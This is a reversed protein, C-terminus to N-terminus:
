PNGEQSVPQVAKRVLTECDQHPQLLDVIKTTVAERRRVEDPNLGLKKANAVDKNAAAQFSKVTNDHRANQDICSQRVFDERQQQIAANQKQIEANQQEIRDNQEGQKKLVIGFGFISVATSIGVIAVIVLGWLFFRHIQKRIADLDEDIKRDIHEYPVARRESPDQDLEDSM